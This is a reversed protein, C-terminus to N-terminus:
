LDDTVPQGSGSGGLCHERIRDEIQRPSDIIEYFDEIYGTTKGATSRTIGPVSSVMDLIAQRKDRFSRISRDLHENNVCRGRYLRQRVNRLRFRPNPSAYPASVLGSMDFDYPVPLLSGSDDGMLIVNHCCREGKTGRVPSFDTNGILYQFVSVLNMHEGDLASVKTSEADDVKRGLRKAVQNHHEILFAYNTAAVGDSDSEVYTVSLLRVRFSQDSVLNLIRYAMYERLLAQVYRSSGSRCHTVLKLKDSKAFLTGRTKRFNLRLPAFPCVDRQRRYRGRTRIGVDLVIEGAEPDQYRLTGATYDDDSRMKMIDSFPAEITVELMEHSSFLPATKPKEGSAGAPIAAVLAAALILLPRSKLM